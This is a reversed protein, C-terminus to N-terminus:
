LLLTIVVLRGTIVPWPQYIHYTLVILHILLWCCNCIWGDFQASDNGICRLGLLLLLRWKKKPPITLLALSYRADAWGDNCEQWPWQKSSGTDLLLFQVPFSSLSRYFLLLPLCCRVINIFPLYRDLLWLRSKKIYYQRSSLRKIQINIYDSTMLYLCFKPRVAMEYRHLWSFSSKSLLDSTM